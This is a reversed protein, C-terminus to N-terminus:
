FGLTLQPPVWSEQKVDRIIDSERVHGALLPSSPDHTEMNRKVKEMDNTAYCYLCGHGCSDYAGIDHGLLCPCPRYRPQAPVKLSVGLGEELKEKTMCGSVDVGYGSLFSGESCADVKMGYRRAIPALLRVLLIQEERTVERAEPFRRKVKPFVDLFSVVVRETYGCLYEAMKGFARVHFDLTYNQTLLIPDYRWVCAKRGVFRSLKRFSALVRGKEPVFPELDKGYPTITVFWFQRFSSLSPLHELMPAPNKTCFVLADVVRPDLRYRSVLEPHFPNRAMVMGTRVKDLFWPTYFAPIDTRQGVNIIM